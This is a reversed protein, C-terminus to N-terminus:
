GAAAGGAEPEAAILPGPDNRRIRELIARRHRRTFELYGYFSSILLLFEVVNGVPVKHRFVLSFLDTLLRRKAVDATLLFRRVLHGLSFVKDGVRIDAENYKRFSGNGFIKVAKKRVREPALLRELVQFYTEFMEAQSIHRYRMTPHIGNLLDPDIDAMRGVRRMREFLDTGPYATLVNLMILSLNTRDTFNVIHEFADLRDADFGVIFSGVVHLGHRHLAAIGAEYREIRNQRKGTERLSAPNLSEIGLLVSTCGAESMADLLDEHECLDLSAQCMWTVNLPKLREMLARAFAKNATLNDDVFTIQKKPLGEIEAVLNDVERYRHRRGFLNRVLCFDCSYPCGRSAQVGLAMINETDVLDWRPPPNTKFEYLTERKYTPKLAGREFDALCEPWIGEAEGIVVSDCHQLSEEVNFSVHSGGMVVPVAMERFRDAIAYARKISSTLATLGVIDPPPQFRVPAMEEDHIAIDYNEPTLAAVTPLALPHVATRKRMIRCLEKLDWHFRHRRKPNVLLLRYRKGRSDAM